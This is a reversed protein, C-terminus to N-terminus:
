CMGMLFANIWFLMFIQYVVIYRTNEDWKMETIFQYPAARAVPEGVSFVYVFSVLWVSLWIGAFIYTFFPL